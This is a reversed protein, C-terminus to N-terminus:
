PLQNVFTVGAGETVKPRAILTQLALESFAPLKVTGDPNVDANGYNDTADVALKIVDSSIGEYGHNTVTVKVFIAVGASTNTAATTVTQEPGTAGTSTVAPIANTAYAGGVTVDWDVVATQTGKLGSLQFTPKFIGTFNAAVVEFYLYNVGYDNTIGTALAWSSSVIGAYCQSEDVGYDLTTKSVDEINTIDITFANKPIINMVKVNNNTCGTAPGAYEVVMFLPAAATVGNFINSSWTVTTSTPTAVAPALTAYNVVDTITAASTAIVTASRSGTAMFSISKTAYWYAKGGVPDIIASYTYPRGAIPNMADTTVFTLPRPALGITADAGYSKSVNAFVAVFLIVLIFIQKKM